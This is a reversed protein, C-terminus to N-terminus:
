SWRLPSCPPLPAERLGQGLLSCCSDAVCFRRVPSPVSAPLADDRRPKTGEAYPTCCLLLLLSPAASRALRSCAVCRWRFPTRIVGILALPASPRAWPSAQSPSSPGCTLAVRFAPSVPVPRSTLPLIPSVGLSSCSPPQPGEAAVVLKLPATGSGQPLLEEARWHSVVAGLNNGEDCRICLM